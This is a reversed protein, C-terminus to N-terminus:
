EETLYAVGDGSAGNVHVDQLNVPGFPVSEGAALLVTNQPSLVPSDIGGVAVKGVNADLAIVLVSTVQRTTSSLVVATGTM